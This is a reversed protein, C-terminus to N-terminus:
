NYFKSAGADPSPKIAAIGERYKKSTIGNKTDAGFIASTSPANHHKPSAPSAPPAPKPPQQM